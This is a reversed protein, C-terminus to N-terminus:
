RRASKRHKKRKGGSQSAKWAYWAGVGVVALGGVGMAIAFGLGSGPQENAAEPATQAEPTAAGVPASEPVSAPEAASGVPAEPPMEVFAGEAEDIEEAPEEAAPEDAAPEEAAPEVIEGVPAEEPVSGEM